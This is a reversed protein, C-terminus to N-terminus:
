VQIRQLDQYAQLIKNRIEVALMLQMKAQEAAIMVRHVEISDGRAFGVTKSLFQEQSRNIGSLASDLTKEFAAGSPGVTTKGGVLEQLPLRNSVRALDFNM